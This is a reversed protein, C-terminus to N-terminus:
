SYGGQIIHPKSNIYTAKKENKSLATVAVIFGLFIFQLESSYSVTGYDAILMSVLMAFIIQNTKITKVSAVLLKIYRSYYIVFGIIGLNALMETYNNHSYTFQIRNLYRFGDIGVGIIPHKIFVELANQIFATRERTSGDVVGNIGFYQYYMREFRYGIARYFVDVNMVVYYVIYLAILGIFIRETLKLLNNSRLVYTTFVIIGFVILGKKTGMMVSVFIYMFILFVYSIKKSKKKHNYSLVYYYFIIGAAYALFVATTNSSFLPIDDFRMENGWSSVPIQAFFRISVIFGTVMISSIIHQIKESTETLFLVIFGILCGQAVSLTCMVATVNRNSAWLCSFAVYVFYLLAWLFYNKVEGRFTINGKLLKFFLVLSAIAQSGLCLVPIDSFAITGIIMLPVAMNNLSLIKNSRQM